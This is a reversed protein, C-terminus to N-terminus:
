KLCSGMKLLAWGTIIILLLVTVLILLVRTNSEFVPQKGRNLPTCENRYEYHKPDVGNDEIDYEFINPSSALALINGNYIEKNLSKELNRSCRFKKSNTMAKRGLVKRVGAPSFFLAEMGMPSETKVITIDECSDLKQHMQCCDDYKFLYAVDFKRSKFTNLDGLISNKSCILRDTIVLCYDNPYKAAAEKLCNMTRETHSLKYERNVEVTFSSNAFLRSLRRLKSKYPAEHVLIWVRYKM